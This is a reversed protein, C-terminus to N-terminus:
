GGSPPPLVPIATDLRLDRTQSGDTWTVTVVLRRWSDAGPDLVLRDITYGTGDVTVSRSHAPGASDTLVDDGDFTTLGNASSTGTEIGDLVRLTELESAALEVAAERHDGSLQTRAVVTAVQSWALATIAIISLAIVAEVVTRGEDDRELCDRVPETEADRVSDLHASRGV